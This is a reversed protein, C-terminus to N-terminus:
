YGLLKDHIRALLPLPVSRHGAEYRQWSRETCGYWKAAQRQTMGSVDRFIKILNRPETRLISKSM